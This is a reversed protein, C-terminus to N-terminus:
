NLKRRKARLKQKKNAAKLLALKGSDLLKAEMDSEEFLEVKTENVYILLVGYDHDHKYLWRGILVQLQHQYLLADSLPLTPSSASTKSYSTPNQFLLKGNKTSCRRYECGRKLEVVYKKGTEKHKVILDLFTKINEQQALVQTEEIELNMGDLTKRILQTEKCGKIINNSLENDLRNGRRKAARKKLGGPNQPKHLLHKFKFGPCFVQPILKTIGPMKKLETMKKVKDIFFSV